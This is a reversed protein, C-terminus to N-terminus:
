VKSIVTPPLLTDAMTGSTYLYCTSSVYKYSHCYNVTPDIPDPAKRTVCLELCQKISNPTWGNTTILSAAVGSADTNATSAPYM